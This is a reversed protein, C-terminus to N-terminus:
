EAKQIWCEDEGQSLEGLLRGKRVLFYSGALAMILATIGYLSSADTHHLDIILVHRGAAILAVILITEARIQHRTFYVKVTELLELGLLILLIGSFSRQVAEQIDSVTKLSPLVERLRTVFLVTLLLLLIVLLLSLFWILYLAIGKEFRDIFRSGPITVAM